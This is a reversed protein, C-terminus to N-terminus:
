LIFMFGWCMVNACAYLIELFDLFLRCIIIYTVCIHLLYQIKLTVLKLVSFYPFFVCHKTEM